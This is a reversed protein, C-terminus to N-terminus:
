LQAAPGVRAGGRGSVAADTETSGGTDVPPRAAPSMVKAPYPGTATATM